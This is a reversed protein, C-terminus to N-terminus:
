QMDKKYVRVFPAKDQVSRPVQVGVASCPLRPQLVERVDGAGDLPEVEHNDVVMVTTVPANLGYKIQKM